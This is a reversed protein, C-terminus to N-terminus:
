FGRRNYISKGSNSINERYEVGKNAPESLTVRSNASPEPDAEADPNYKRLIPNKTDIDEIKLGDRLEVNERKPIDYTDISEKYKVNDPAEIHTDRAFDIFPDSFNKYVLNNLKTLQDAVRDGYAGIPKEIEATIMKSVYSPDLANKLANGIPTTASLLNKKYSEQRAQAQKALASREHRMEGPLEQFFNRIKDGFTNNKNTAETQFVEADGISNSSGQQLNSFRDTAASMALLKVFDFNGFVNNFTGTYEAFRFNLTLNNKVNDGSMENSITGFFSKGSDDNNIQADGIVILHHNFEYTSNEVFYDQSLKKITPYIMREVKNLQTDNVDSYLNDYLVMNYYGASYVLINCDFRRLNAPLVEVGRNNDYWINRYATLLSQFFMDSTERITFSLKDDEKFAEHPKANVISDIGDVNLILFDYNKIFSKFREIWIKLLEYRTTDGIRKLYALASDIKSEDAFLGYDKDYDIMLKFNLILPDAYKAQQARVEPTIFVEQSHNYRTNLKTGSM